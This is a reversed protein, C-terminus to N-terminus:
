DTRRRSQHRNQYNGRAESFCSYREQDQLACCRDKIETSAKQRDSSQQGFVVAWICLPEENNCVREYRENRINDVCTLRESGTLQCCAEMVAKRPAMLNNVQERAEPSLRKLKSEHHRNRGSSAQSSMARCIHNVKQETTWNGRVRGGGRQGGHRRGQHGRQGFGRHKGWRPGAVTTMEDEEEANEETEEVTGREPEELGYFSVDLADNVIDGSSATTYLAAVVCTALLLQFIINM